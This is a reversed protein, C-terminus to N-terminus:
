ANEILKYYCNGQPCEGMMGHREIKNRAKTESTSAELAMVLSFDELDTPSSSIGPNIM